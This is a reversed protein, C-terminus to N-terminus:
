REENTIKVFLISDHQAQCLSCNLQLSVQSGTETTSKLGNPMNDLNLAKRIFPFTTYSLMQSVFSKDM